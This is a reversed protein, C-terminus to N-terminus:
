RAPWLSRKRQQEFQMKAIQGDTAAVKLCNEMKNWLQLSIILRQHLDKNDLDARGMQEIIDDRVRARAEQWLDSDLVEQAKGSRVSMELLEHETM